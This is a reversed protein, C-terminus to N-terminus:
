VPLEHEVGTRAGKGITKKWPIGQVYARLKKTTTSSFQEKEIKKCYKSLCQNLRYRSSDNLVTNTTVFHRMRLDM